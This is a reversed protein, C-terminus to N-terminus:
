ASCVRDDARWPEYQARVNDRLLSLTVDRLPITVDETRAAAFAGVEAEAFGRRRLCPPADATAKPRGRRECKPAHATRGCALTEMLEGVTSTLSGVAGSDASLDPPSYSCTSKVCLALARAAVAGESASFDQETDAASPIIV